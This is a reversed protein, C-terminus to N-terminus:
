PTIVHDEVDGTFQPLSEGPVTPSVCEGSVCRGDEGCPVGVCSRTYQIEVARTENPTFGTVVTHDLVEGDLRTLRTTITVPAETMGELVLGITLPLDSAGPETFDNTSGLVMAGTPGVVSVDVKELESQPMDSSLVVVLQTLPDACSSMAGLALLLLTRPIMANMANM